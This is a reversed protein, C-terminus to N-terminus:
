QGFPCWRAMRSQTLLRPRRPQLFQTVRVQSLQPPPFRYRDSWNHGNRTYALAAGREVLLM